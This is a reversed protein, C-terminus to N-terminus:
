LTQLVINESVQFTNEKHFTKPHTRMSHHKEHKTEDSKLATFSTKRFQFTNQGVFHKPHINM